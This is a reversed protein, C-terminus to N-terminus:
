TIAQEWRAKLDRYRSTKAVALFEKTATPGPGDALPGDYRRRTIQRDVWYAHGEMLFGYDRDAVDRLDPYATTALRYMDEAAAYQFSHTLEHAVLRHLYPEDNLRGGERLAEPMLFTKSRAIGSPVTQAPLFMWMANRAAASATLTGRAKFKRAFDPRLEDTDAHFRAKDLRRMQKVWGKPSVTEIVVTDPHELGTVEGVLPAVARVTEELDKAVATFETGAHDEILINM